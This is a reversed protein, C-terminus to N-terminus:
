FWVWESGLRNLVSGIWLCISDSDFRNLVLGIWFLATWLWVTGCCGVHSGPQPQQRRVGWMRQTPNKNKKAMALRLRRAEEDLIWTLTFDLWSLDLWTMDLWCTLDVWTLDLWTLELWTLDVGTLELWSLGWCVGCLTLDLCSLDHRSLGLWTLDATYLGDRSDLWDLWSFGSLILWTLLHSRPLKPVEKCSCGRLLICTNKM